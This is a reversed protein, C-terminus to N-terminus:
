PEAAPSSTLATTATSPARRPRSARRGAALAALRANMAQVRRESELLRAAASEEEAHLQPMERRIRDVESEEAIIRRVTGEAVLMRRGAQALQDTRQRRKTRQQKILEGVEKESKARASFEKVLNSVEKRRQEKAAGQQELLERTVAWKTAEREARREAVAETAHRQEAERAQREAERAATRQQREAEAAQARQQELAERHERAAVKNHQEQQRLQEKREQEAARQQQRQEELAQKLGDVERRLELKALHHQKQHVRIGYEVDNQEAQKLRQLAAAYERQAAEKQRRLEAIRTALVASDAAGSM